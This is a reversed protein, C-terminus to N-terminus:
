NRPIRKTYKSAPEPAAELTLGSITFSDYLILPNRITPPPMFSGIVAFFITLAPASAITIPVNNSFFPLRLFRVAIAFAM